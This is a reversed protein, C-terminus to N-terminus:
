EAVERTYAHWNGNIAVDFGYETERVDEIHTITYNYTMFVACLILAITILARRM